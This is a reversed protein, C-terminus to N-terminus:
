AGNERNSKVVTEGQELDISLAENRDNENKNVIGSGGMSKSVRHHEEWDNTIITRRARAVIRTMRAGPKLGSKL